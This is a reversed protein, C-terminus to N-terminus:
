KYRWITQNQKDEIIVGNNELEKRIVDALKYDGKKRAINRDKIKQNIFNEDVKAKTKKFNEWSQKDEELLGILKCASLFKSKSLKNGKSSEDYLLHM